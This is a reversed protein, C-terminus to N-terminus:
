TTKKPPPNFYERLADESVYTVSGFRQAKLRGTKIYTYLTRRSISLKDQIEELTYLRLEGIVVPM